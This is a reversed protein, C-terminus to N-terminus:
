CIIWTEVQPLVTTSNPRFKTSLARNPYCWQRPTLIKYSNQTSPFSFLSCTRIGSFNYSTIRRYNKEKVLFSLVWSGQRGTKQRSIKRWMKGCKSPETKFFFHKVFIEPLSSFSFHFQWAFLVRTLCPLKFKPVPNNPRYKLKVLNVGQHRRFQM